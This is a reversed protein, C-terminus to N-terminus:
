LDHRQYLRSWIEDWQKDIMDMWEELKKEYEPDGMLTDEMIAYKEELDELNGQMQRMLEDPDVCDSASTPIPHSSAFRPIKKLIVTGQFGQQNSGLSLPPPAALVAPAPVPAPPLAPQNTQAPVVPNLPIGFVGVPQNTQPPHTALPRQFIGTPANLYASAILTHGWVNSLQNAQTPHAATPPRLIRPPGFVVPQTQTAAVVSPPFGAALMAQHKQALQAATPSIRQGGFGSINQWYQTPTAAPQSLAPLGTATTVVQNPVPPHSPPSPLTNNSNSNNSPLVFPTNGWQALVPAPPGQSGPFIFPISTNFVPVGQTRVPYAARLRDAVDKPITPIM